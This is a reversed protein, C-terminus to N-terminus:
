FHSLVQGDARVWKCSVELFLAALKQFDITTANQDVFKEWFPAAQSYEEPRALLPPLLSLRLKASHRKRIM